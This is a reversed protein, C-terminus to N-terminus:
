WRDKIWPLVGHSPNVVANVLKVAEPETWTNYRATENWDKVVLRNQSRVLNATKDSDREAVLDAVVLLKEINHTYCRNALDKDPYEHQVIQRAIRAKL